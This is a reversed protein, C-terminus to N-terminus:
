IENQICQNQLHVCTERRECLAYADVTQYKDIGFEELHSPHVAFVQEVSTDSDSHEDGLDIADIALRWLSQLSGRCLHVDRQHGVIDIMCANQGQHICSLVKHAEFRHTHNKISKILETDVRVDM